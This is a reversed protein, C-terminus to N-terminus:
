LGITRSVHEYIPALFDLYSGMFPFAMVVDEKLPVIMISFVITLLILLYFLLRTRRAVDVKDKDDSLEELQKKELAEAASKLHDKKFLKGFFGLNQDREIKLNDLNKDMEDKSPLDKDDDTFIKFGTTQQSKQNEQDINLEEINEEVEESFNEELLDQDEENNEIVPDQSPPPTEVNTQPQNGQEPHYFWVESCAGCRVKSGESPMLEDSLRFKKKGCICNIIM